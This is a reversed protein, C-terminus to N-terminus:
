FLDLVSEEPTDLAAESAESGLIRAHALKLFEPNLDCGIYDRGNALAVMGTTGSGSFLDMVVSRASGDNGECTCTPAWGIIKVPGMSKLIRRKVDAPNQVGADEYNKIPVGNYDGDGYAGCYKVHAPDPDGKETVPLWGAGRM